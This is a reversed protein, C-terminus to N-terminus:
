YSVVTCRISNRLLVYLRGSQKLGGNEGARGGNWDKRWELGRETGARGRTRARETGAM